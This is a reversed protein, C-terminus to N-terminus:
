RARYLDLVWKPPDPEEKIELPLGRSVAWRHLWSLGMPGVYRDELRYAPDELAREIPIFAYGRKRLLAALRDMSDANIHNAHLLVIQRVERGLVQRSRREFYDFMTETYELYAAMTKNAMDADGQQRARDYIVEFVFDANEVTFPAVLYGRDALFTEFADKAERTPGTSTYPHRFYRPKLKREEMLRRTVTDGRVVDDQYDALPTDQFRKHSFTHNGLPIGADLWMRLVDARADFEGRVYLKGENVFGIAPIKHAALSALLRATMARLTALDTRSGGKPLDDFTFAVEKTPPGTPGGQKAPPPAAQARLLVTPAALWLLLLAPLLKKM